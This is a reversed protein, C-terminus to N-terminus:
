GFHLALMSAVKQDWQKEIEKDLTFDSYDVASIVQMGNEDFRINLVLNSVFSQQVTTGQEQLFHNVEVKDWHLIIHFSLPTRKGKIMQFLIPRMERFPIYRNLNEETNEGQNGNMDKYYALNRHGDIHYSVGTVVSAEKLFFAEFLGGTLLQNMFDKQSTIQFAQM